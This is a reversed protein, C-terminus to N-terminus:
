RGIFEAYLYIVSFLMVPFVTTLLCIVIEAKALNLMPIRKIKGYVVIVSLVVLSPLVWDSYSYVTLLMFFEKLNEHGQIKCLNFISVIAITLVFAGIWLILGLMIVKKVLPLHRELLRELLSTKM